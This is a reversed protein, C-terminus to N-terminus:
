RRRTLTGHASPKSGGSIWSTTGPRPVTRRVPVSARKTAAPGTITAAPQCAAPSSASSPTSAPSTASGQSRPMAAGALAEIEAGVIPAVPVDIGRPRVFWEAFRRIADPDYGGALGRELQAVHEDFTEAYEVVGGNEKLLYYFHRSGSQAPAEA